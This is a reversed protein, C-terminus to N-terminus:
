QVAMREFMQAALQRFAVSLDPHDAARAWFAQAVPQAPSQLDMPEPSFPLLDLAGTQVDPRWRMPLMDYVPALTFRGTAVDGPQVWLSLNGFHM